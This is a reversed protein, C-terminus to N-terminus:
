QEGGEQSHNQFDTLLIWNEYIIFHVASQVGCYKQTISKKKEDQIGTNRFNEYCISELSTGM